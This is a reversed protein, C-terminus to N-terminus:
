VREELLCGLVTLWGKGIFYDDHIVPRGIVGLLSDLGEL